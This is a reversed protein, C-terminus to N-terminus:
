GAGVGGAGTGCEPCATEAALGTRDYKCKPCVNRALLERREVDDFYERQKRRSRFSARLLVIGVPAPALACPWGGAFISAAGALVFAGGLIALAGPYETNVVQPRPVHTESAPAPTRDELGTMCLRYLTNEPVHSVGADGRGVGGWVGPM